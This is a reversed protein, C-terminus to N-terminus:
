LRVSAPVTVAEDLETLLHQADYRLAATADERLARELAADVLIRHLRERLFPIQMQSNLLPILRVPDVKGGAPSDLLAALTDANTSAHKILREWLVNDGNESAFEIAGPIDDLENLLIDLASNTDGMAALVYVRESALIGKGKGGVGGLAKLATDLSYHNSMKLFNFLMGKEGHEVYLRLLLNHYGSARDPDLKFVSHLYLFMWKTNAIDELIPVVADPPLVTEPAHVLLETTVDEDIRFMGLITNRSRVAEYLHHSKIYEFVRPSRDKLLLNLTEDHRGSLGYLMLLSERLAEKEAEAINDTSRQSKELEHEVKRTVSTLNFVDAPWTKLVGLMSIPKREALELLVDDYIRQEFRPEYTPICPAVVALKDASRFVEIWHEWRKKRAAMVKDRRRMGMEPSTSSITNPLVSALRDYDGAKRISELFQDGISSISVEARRLSGGPASQAIALADSFRNNALLWQVQEAVTLSSALTVNTDSLRSNDETEATGSSTTRQLESEQVEIAHSLVLVLPDGGPVIRMEAHKLGTHPLAMSRICHGTQDVLHLTLSHWATGVLVIRDSDGFPLACLLPSRSLDAVPRPFNGAGINGFPSNAEGWDAIDGDDGMAALAGPLSAPLYGRELRFTVDVERPCETFESGTRHPGIRLTRASLPWTVHLITAAETITGGTESGTAPEEEKMFLAVSQTWRALIPDQSPSDDGSSAAPPPPVGHVFQARTSDSVAGTAAAANLRADIDEFDVSAAAIPERSSEADSIPSPPTPPSPPSMPVVQPLASSESPGAGSSMQMRARPALVLCVPTVTRMDIVHVTDGSAFALLNACWALARVAPMGPAKLEHREDVLWGPSFTRIAGSTEAWAIRNGVRARGFNPDIQLHTLPTAAKTRLLIQAKELPVTGDGGLRTAIVQCSESSSALVDARSSADLATIRTSHRTTDTSIANGFVDHVLLAGKANGLVIFHPTATSATIQPSSPGFASLSFPPPGEAAGASTEM